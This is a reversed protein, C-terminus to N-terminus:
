FGPQPGVEPIPGALAAGTTALGTLALAVLVVVLGMRVVDVVVAALGPTALRRVTDKRAVRRNAGIAAVAM